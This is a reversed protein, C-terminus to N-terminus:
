SKLLITHNVTGFAKSFDLFICCSFLGKEINNILQSQLELIALSTSKNEQFGYQHKYIIDNIGLFKILRSNMLKELIKSFIPLILIPRYNGCELKSKNKHIPTVKAFKLKDPFVGELFSSNAITFFPESITHRALKILRTPVNYSDNSKSEDLNAIIDNVEQPTM